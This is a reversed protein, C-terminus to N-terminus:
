KERKLEVSEDCAVLAYWHWRLTEQGSNCEQCQHQHPARRLYRSDLKSPSSGCPHALIKFNLDICDSFMPPSPVLFRTKPCSSRTRKPPWLTTGRLNYTSWAPNLDDSALLRLYDYANESLLREGPRHSRLMSYIFMLIAISLTCSTDDLRVSLRM